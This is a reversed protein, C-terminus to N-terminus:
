KRTFRVDRRASREGDTAEVSLLYPGEVLHAIPVTFPYEVIRRTSFLVSEITDAAQHVVKDHGDVVRIQLNVKRPRSKGGQVIQLFGTVDDDGAFERVATPPSPLLGDPANRPAAVLGPKVILAAASLWLGNRRFD